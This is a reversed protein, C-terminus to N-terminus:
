EVGENKIYRKKTVKQNKSSSSMSLRFNLRFIFLTYDIVTGDLSRVKINKRLHNTMQNFKNIM